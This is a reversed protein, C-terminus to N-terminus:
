QNNDKSKHLGLNPKNIIVADEALKTVIAGSKTFFAIRADSSAIVIGEYLVTGDSSQLTKCNSWRKNQEFHCGKELYTDITKEAINKGAHYGLISPFGWLAFVTSLFLAAMVFVFTFAGSVSVVQGVDSKTFFSTASLFVKAQRNALCRISFAILCLTLFFGASILVGNWTFFYDTIFAGLNLLLTLIAVYGVYYVDQVSMEFIDSSIGYTSAYGAYFSLGILYLLPAAIAILSIILQLLSLPAKQGIEKEDM